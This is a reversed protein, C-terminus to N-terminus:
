TLSNYQNVWIHSLITPLAWQSSLLHGHTEYNKTHKGPPLCNTPPMGEWDGHRIDPNAIDPLDAIFRGNGYCVILKGSLLGNSRLEIRRKGFTKRLKWCTKNRHNTHKHYQM